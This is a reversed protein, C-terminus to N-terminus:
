PQSIVERFAELWEKQDQEQECMFVFQRDPTEMSVGCRWKCGRTHKPQCEKVSYGHSETGIFVAGLEVADLSTKFYLLKRDTANLIFWRRKFPEWQTPGTKEMYGEKLSTRTILPILEEELASPNLRKLYSLRTARIANFWFVIEQGNDHYVFINRGRGEQQYSIQLGHAHGIKEPQFIANLDKMSIVEKPTKSDENVFYRLSLDKQSLLFRRRVFQKNDNSKKWLTGEYIGSSYAQQYYNGEESFELREYKARIWQEKLICCDKERPRYYFAPVCKEYRAKATANGNERMFEVLADDWFDLLISKIKSIDPLNRHTGSCNVCLFIGLTYSAWDPESAGCDACVNNSPQKVMELLFRKNRDWNAM